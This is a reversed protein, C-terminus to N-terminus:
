SLDVPWTRASRTVALLEVREGRVRYPIIYSSRWFRKRVILERTGDKRGPHGPSPQGCL